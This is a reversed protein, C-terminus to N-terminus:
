QCAGSGNCTQAGPCEDDPDQGAPINGCTGNPGQCRKCLSGVACPVPCCVGDACPLNYCDAFTVCASGQLGKCVGGFCAKGAGCKGPNGDSVPMCIGGFMGQSCTKCPDNCAENCCYGDACHGTDCSADAACLTGVESVCTANPGCSDCSNPCANDIGCGNFSNQPWWDWANALPSCTGELGAQDCSRCPTTCKTDCCRHDTCYMGNCENSPLGPPTNCTKGVPVYGPCAGSGDCANPAPCTDPDPAGAAVNACTGVSGPLDCSKCIGDCAASCCVGDACVLSQCELASACPSGAPKKAVCAGAGDCVTGGADDCPVGALVPTYVPVGSQCTDVTCGNGDDPLDADDATPTPLGAADCVSFSCDGPVQFAVPTGAAVFGVACAGADCVAVHCQVNPSPCDAATVCPLAGGTAGGSGASGGTSTTSSGGAGGPTNVVCGALAAAALATVAM